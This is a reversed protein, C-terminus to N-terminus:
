SRIIVIGLEYEKALCPNGEPYLSLKPISDKALAATHASRGYFLTRLATLAPIVSSNAVRSPQNASRQVPRLDDGPESCPAGRTGQQPGSGTTGVTVRSSGPSSSMKLDDTEGKAEHRVM